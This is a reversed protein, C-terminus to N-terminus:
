KRFFVLYMILILLALTGLGSIIRSWAEARLWFDHRKQPTRAPM